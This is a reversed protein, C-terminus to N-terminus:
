TDQPQTQGELAFESVFNQSASFSQKVLSTNARRIHMANELAEVDSCAHQALAYYKM